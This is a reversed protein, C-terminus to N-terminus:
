RVRPTDITEIWAVTTNGAFFEAALLHLKKTLGSIDGPLYVVGYGKYFTERDKSKKAKGYYRTHAPSPPIDSTGPSSIDSSLIDSSEGIDGIPATDTDDTDESGEEEAIRVGPIVMKKLMYKWKWTAHPRAGDTRNPFSKVRTQAVLSRYVHHDLVNLFSMNDTSSCM